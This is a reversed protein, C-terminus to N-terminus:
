DGACGAPDTDVEPKGLTFLAISTAVFLPIALQLALEYNGTLDYVLSVLFPGSAAALSYLAAIVGFITGYSATGFQKATLYAIVDVEAGLALGLMVVALVAVPESGPMTLLLVCSAIPLLVCTGGVFNADLRDMLHGTTLRGIISSIGVVGAIGAAEARGFEFSTLIPILNPVLGLACISFFFAAFALKAFRLTRIAEKASVGTAPAAPKVPNNRREGRPKDANSHLGFYLVPLVILIVVLSIVPPASRWGYNDIVWIALVPLTASALGSGCLAVALALGRSKDFNAAIATTWLPTQVAVAACAMLLWIGWWVFLSETALAILSFSALALLAGPLAIRRPGWKDVLIGLLPTGLGTGIMMLSFGSTIEGRSWGFEEELPGIFAGLTYLFMAPAVFGVLCALALPWNKAWEQRVSMQAEM